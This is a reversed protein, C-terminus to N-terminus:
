FNIKSVWEKGVLRNTSSELDLPHLHLADRPQRHLLEPVTRPVPDHAAARRTHRAVVVHKFQVGVLRGVDRKARLVPQLVWARLHQLQDFHLGAVVQTLVVDDAVLVHVAARLSESRFLTTYPFLTDTRTSRPPRRIM